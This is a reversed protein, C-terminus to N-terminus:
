GADQEGKPVPKASLIADGKAAEAGRDAGDIWKSYHKFLMGTNAHGLQKAIYAPNVGGMLLQTAFTHRAQYADRDRIGLARLTPKFFRRRPARENPFPRGHLPDNFIPGDPTKMFTHAKQRKLAEIVTEALDVERILSTKTGKVEGEVLAKSVKAKRRRWDIDPWSLIIQESPRLGTGFAFTYYNWIQEDYRERMHQLIADKEDADFPDPEPKQHKLNSIGDTPSTQILRDNVATKFLDRLPILQNNVTKGTAGGAVKEAVAKKVDSYRIDTLAKDAFAPKWTARMATTYSRKTSKAVTLTKLWEDAYDAFAETSKQGDGEFFDGPRYVGAVIAAQVREMLRGAAKMNAPTPPLNLTKVSRTGHVTFKLRISSRLAEVTGTARRGM